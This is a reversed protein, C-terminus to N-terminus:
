QEFLDKLQINLEVVISLTLAKREIKMNINGLIDLYQVTFSIHDVALVDRYQRHILSRVAASLGAERQHIRYVKCLNRVIIQQNLEYRRRRLREM